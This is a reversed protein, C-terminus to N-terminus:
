WDDGGPNRTADIYRSTERSVPPIRGATIADFRASLEARVTDLAADDPLAALAMMAREVEEASRADRALILAQERTTM